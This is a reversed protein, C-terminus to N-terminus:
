SILTLIPAQDTGHPNELSTCRLFSGDRATLGCVLGNRLSTILEGDEVVLQGGDWGQATGVTNTITRPISQSWASKGAETTLAIINLSPPPGTYFAAIPAYLSLTQRAYIFGDGEQLFVFAAPRPSQYDWLQSGDRISLASIHGAESGFYIARQDIVLSSIRGDIPKSVWQQVGSSMDFAYILSTHVTDSYNAIDQHGPYSLFTAYISGNAPQLALFSSTDKHWPVQQTWQPQGNEADLAFLRNDVTIYLRQAVVSSMQTYGSTGQYTYSWRMHGNASELAQIHYAPQDNVQIYVLGHVVRPTSLIKGSAPNGPLSPGKIGSNGGDLQSRWLLTGDRAALAYLYHHLQHTVPDDESGGFYIRGDAIALPSEIRTAWSSLAEGSLHAHEVGQMTWPASLTYHWLLTFQGDQLSLHYVSDGTAAYFGPSATNQQNRPMVFVLVGGLIGLCLLATFTSLFALKKRAHHM